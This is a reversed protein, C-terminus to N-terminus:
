DGNTIHIKLDPFPPYDFDRPQTVAIIKKCWGCTDEHWSSIGPVPNHRMAEACPRCIWNPYPPGEEHVLMQEIELPLKMDDPDYYPPPVESRIQEANWSEFHDFAIVCTDPGKLLSAKFAAEKIFFIDKHLTINISGDEMIEYTQLIYIKM